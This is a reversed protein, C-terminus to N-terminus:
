MCCIIQHDKSALLNYRKGFISTMPQNDAVDQLYYYTNTDHKREITNHVPIQRLKEKSNDKNYITAKSAVTKDM